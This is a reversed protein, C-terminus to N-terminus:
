FVMHIDLRGCHYITSCCQAVYRRALCSPLPLRWKNFFNKKALTPIGEKRKITVSIKTNSEKKSKNPPIGELVRVTFTPQSATGDIRPPGPPDHGGLSQKHERGM